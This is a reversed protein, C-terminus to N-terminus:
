EANSLLADQEERCAATLRDERIADYVEDSQELTWWTRDAHMGIGQQRAQRLLTLLGDSAHPLGLAELLAYTTLGPERTLIGAADFDTM